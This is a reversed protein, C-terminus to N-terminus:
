KDEDFLKNIKEDRLEAETKFNKIEYPVLGSGIKILYFEDGYNNVQDSEDVAEYWNGEYITCDGWVSDKVINTKICFVKIYKQNIIPIM